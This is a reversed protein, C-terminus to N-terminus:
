RGLNRLISFKAPKNQSHRGGRNRECPRERVTGQVWREHAKRLAIVHGFGEGRGELEKKEKLNPGKQTNV